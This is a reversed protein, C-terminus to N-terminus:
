GCATKRLAFRRHIYRDRRTSREWSAATKLGGVMRFGVEHNRKKRADLKTFRRDSRYEAFVLDLTGVTAVPQTADSEGGTLWSDFAPLLVTEARKVAEDYDTGLPENSLPCGTKRAWMAINFFYGWGRKLPKRLVYRTKPRASRRPKM